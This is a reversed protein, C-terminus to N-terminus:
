ADLKMLEARLATLEEEDLDHELAVAELAAEDISGREETEALFAEIPGEFM